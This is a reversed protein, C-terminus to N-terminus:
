QLPTCIHARTYCYQASGRGTAAVIGDGELAVADVNLGRPRREPGM